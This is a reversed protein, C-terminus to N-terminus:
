EAVIADGYKLCLRASPGLQRPAAITRRGHRLDQAALAHIKVRKPGLALDDAHDLGKGAGRYLLSPCKAVEAHDFDIPQPARRHAAAAEVGIRDHHTRKRGTSRGVFRTAGYGTWPQGGLQHHHRWRCSADRMDGKVVGVATM